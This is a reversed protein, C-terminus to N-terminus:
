AVVSLSASRVDLPSALLDVPYRTLLASVTSNPVSSAALRASSGVATVERWGVRDDFNHNVYQVTTGIASATTTFRCTLRLTHLGAAGPPFTLSSATVTLAPQSTGVRLTIGGKLTACESRRYGAAVTPTLLRSEDSDLQALLQATPIEAMDLVYNVDVGDDRVALGSYQNVTFNGLPHASAVVPILVVASVALV